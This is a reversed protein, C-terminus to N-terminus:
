RHSNTLLLGPPGWAKSSIERTRRPRGRSRIVRITQHTTHVAPCGQSVAYSFESSNLDHRAVQHKYVCARPQPPLPLDLAGEKKRGLRKAGARVGDVSFLDSESMINHENRRQFHSSLKCPPDTIIADFLAGCRWPNRTIDFTCLDLIRQRVAYQAAARMIGPQAEPPFVEMLTDNPHSFSSLDSVKEACRGVM